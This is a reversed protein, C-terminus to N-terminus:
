RLDYNQRSIKGRTKGPRWWSPERNSSRTQDGPIKNTLDGPGAFVDRNQELACCATIRTDSYEGAELVLVGVSMGGIIRNGIPFNQPAFVNGASVRLDARRRSGSNTRVLAFKEKPCIVDVGTGFVAITKGKASIAGRHSATDVGRAM